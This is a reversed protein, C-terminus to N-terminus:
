FTTYNYHSELDTLRNSLKQRVCTNRHEVVLTIIIAGQRLHGCTGTTIVDTTTPGVLPTQEVTQTRLPFKIDTVSVCLGPSLIRYGSKLLWKKELFSSESCHACLYGSCVHNKKKNKYTAATILM